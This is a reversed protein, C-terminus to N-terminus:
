ASSLACHLYRTLDEERLASTVTCTYMYVELDQILQLMVGQNPDSAACSTPTEPHSQRCFNHSLDVRMRVDLTLDLMAQSIMRLPTICFKVLTSWLQSM